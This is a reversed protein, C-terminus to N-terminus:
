ALLRMLQERAHVADRRQSLAPQQAGVLAADLGSVDLCVQVLERKAEVAPERALPM